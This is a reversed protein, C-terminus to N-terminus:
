LEPKDPGLFVNLIQPTMSLEVASFQIQKVSVLGLFWCFYVLMFYYM